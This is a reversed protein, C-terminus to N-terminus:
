LFEGGIIEGYIDVLTSVAQGTEYQELIYGNDIAYDVFDMLTYQFVNFPFALETASSHRPKVQYVTLNQNGDILDTTYEVM